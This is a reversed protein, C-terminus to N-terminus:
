GVKMQFARADRLRKFTNKKSPWLAVAGRGIFYTPTEGKVTLKRIGARTVQYVQM